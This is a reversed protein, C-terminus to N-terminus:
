RIMNAEAEPALHNKTAMLAAEANPDHHNRVRLHGRILKHMNWAYANRRGAYM